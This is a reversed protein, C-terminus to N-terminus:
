KKKGLFKSMIKQVIGKKRIQGKKKQKELWYELEIHLLVFLFCFAAAYNGLPDNFLCSYVLYALAALKLFRLPKNIKDIVEVLKNKYVVPSQDQKDALYSLLYHIFALSFLCALAVGSKWKYISLVSGCFILLAFNTYIKSEIINKAITSVKSM